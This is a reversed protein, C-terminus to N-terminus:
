ALKMVLCLASTGTAQLVKLLIDGGAEKMVGEDRETWNERAFNGKVFIRSGLAVAKNVKLVDLRGLSRNFLNIAHAQTLRVLNDMDTLKEASGLATVGLTQECIQVHLVKWLRHLGLLLQLLHKGLM